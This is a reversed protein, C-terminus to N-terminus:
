QAVMLSLYEQYIPIMINHKILKTKENEYEINLKIIAPLNKNTNQDTQWENSWEDKFMNFYSIEFKKIRKLLIFEEQADSEEPNDDVLTSSSRWLCDSSTKEDEKCTKIYYAVENHEGTKDDSWLRTNSFTAVRLSDENGHLGGTIHTQTALYPNIQIQEYETTDTAEQTNAENNPDSGRNPDERRSEPTSQPLVPNQKKEIFSIHMKANPDEIIFINKLDKRLIQIFNRNIKIEKSKETITKRYKLVTDTMRMLSIAVVAFLALAIVVELLTMGKKNIKFNKLM